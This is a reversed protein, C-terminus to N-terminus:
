RRAGEHFAEITAKEGQRLKRSLIFAGGGILALWFWLPVDGIFDKIPELYTKSEGLNDWAASAAVGVASAGATINAWMKGLWTAQAEPIRERVQAPTAEARGEPQKRSKPETVALKSLLAEDIHDGYPMGNDGRFLVIAKRTFDGIKGDATGVEAYGIERLLTQVRRVTNEDEFTKVAPPVAPKPTVKEVDKQAPIFNQRHTVGPKVANARTWAAQFHMSDIGKGSWSGGWEWGEDAFAKAVQPYKFFRPTTDGLGNNAPDLDIACGWSHMSLSTGGRMLRFNYAGGYTSVGWEDIVAQKKGAAVWLANLVRLLSEACKKHVRLTKVPKGAYRMIFPPTINVLNASEWKASAMGNAGRPNGYFKDCDKQLPWNTM